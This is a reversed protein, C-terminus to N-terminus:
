ASGQSLGACANRNRQAPPLKFLTVRGTGVVWLYSQRQGLWYFLITGGAKRVAEGLPVVECINVFLEPKAKLFGLGENLTQARSYDAAQLAQDTKGQEM